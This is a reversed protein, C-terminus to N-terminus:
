DMSGIGTGEKERIEYICYRGKESWDENLYKVMYRYADDVTDFLGYENLKNFDEIFRTGDTDCGHWKCIFLCDCIISFGGSCDVPYCIDYGMFHYNEPYDDSSGVPRAYILEYENRKQLLGHLLVADAEDAVISLENDNELLRTITQEELASRKSRFESNYLGYVSTGERDAGRYFKDPTNDFPLGSIHKSIHKKFWKLHEAYLIPYKKVIAFSSPWCADKESIIGPEVCEYITPKM